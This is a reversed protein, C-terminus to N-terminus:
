NIDEDEFPDKPKFPDRPEFPDEGGGNGTGTNGGSDGSNGADGTNAADGSASGTQGSLGSNIDGVMGTLMEGLPGVSGFAAKIAANAFTLNAADSGRPQGFGALISGMKLPADIGIASFVGGLVLDATMGLAAGISGVFGLAAIIKSGANGLWAFLNGGSEAWGGDDGLVVYSGLSGILVMMCVFLGADVTKKSKSFYQQIYFFIFLGIFASTFIIRAILNYKFVYWMVMAIVFYILFGIALGLVFLAVKGISVYKHKKRIQGSVKFMVIFMILSSDTTKIYSLYLVIAIPIFTLPNKIIFGLAIATIIGLIIRSIGKSEMELYRKTYLKTNKINSFSQKIAGKSFITKILSKALLMIFFYLPMVLYLNNGILNDHQFGKIYSRTDVLGPAYYPVFETIPGDFMHITVYMTDVFGAVYIVSLIFFILGTVMPLILTKPFGQRFNKSGNKLISIIFAGRTKPFEKVTALDDYDIYYRVNQNTDM